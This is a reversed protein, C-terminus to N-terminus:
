LRTHPKRRMCLELPEEELACEETEAITRPRGAPSFLQNADTVAHKLGRILGQLRDPELAPLAAARLAVSPETRMNM